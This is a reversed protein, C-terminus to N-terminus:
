QFRTGKTTTRLRLIYQVSCIFLTGEDEGWAGTSTVQGRALTGLPKGDPSYVHLDGPGTVFLNAYMDLM